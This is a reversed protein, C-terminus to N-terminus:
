HARKRVNASVAINRGDAFHFQLAIRDGQRFRGNPRFLMLHYGGPEFHLSDGAAIDISSLRQMSAVGDQEISRHMEISGYAESSVGNLTINRDGHNRLHFYGAHVRSVPPAEAIWVDDIDITSPQSEALALTAAPVLSLFLWFRKCALLASLSLM